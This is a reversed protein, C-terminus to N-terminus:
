RGHRSRRNSAFHLRMTAVVYATNLDKSPLRTSKGPIPTPRWGSSIVM